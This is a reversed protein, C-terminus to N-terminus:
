RFADQSQYGSIENSSSLEEETDERIRFHGNSPPASDNTNGTIADDQSDQIKIPTNDHKKDHRNYSAPDNLIEQMHRSTPDHHKDKVRTTETDQDNKAETDDHMELKDSDEFDQKIFSTMFQQRNQRISSTPNDVSEVVDSSNRDHLRERLSTVAIENATEQMGSTVSDELADQANGATKDDGEDQKMIMTTDDLSSQESGVESGNSAAIDNLRDQVNTTIEEQRNQVTGAPPMATENSKNASEPRPIEIGDRKFSLRKVIESPNPKPTLVPPKSPSKRYNADVM